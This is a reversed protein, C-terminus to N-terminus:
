AAPQHGCAVEQSAGALDTSWSLPAFTLECRVVAALNQVSSRLGYDDPSSPNSRAMETGTGVAMKFWTAVYRRAKKDLGNRQM